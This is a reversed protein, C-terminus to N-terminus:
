TSGAAVGSSIVPPTPSTRGATPELTLAITVGPAGSTTTTALTGFGQADPTFSGIAVPTAPDAGIM